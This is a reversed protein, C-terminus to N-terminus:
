NYFEYAVVQNIYKVVGDIFDMDPATWHGRRLDLLNYRISIISPYGILDIGQFHSGERDQMM